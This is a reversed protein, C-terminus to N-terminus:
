VTKLENIKNEKIKEVELNYFKVKEDVEKELLFRQDETIEKSEFMKKIKRRLDDRLNRITERTEETKQSVLKQYNKRQEESLPPLYLYIMKGEVRPNLNLPSKLIAKEIDPITGPDFPNIILTTPGETNITALESIRLKIQQGYTEVTINELITPSAKGTRITTLERKLRLLANNLGEIFNSFQHNSLNM